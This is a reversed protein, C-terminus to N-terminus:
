HRANNTEALRHPTPDARFDRTLAVVAMMLAVLVIFMTPSKRNARIM